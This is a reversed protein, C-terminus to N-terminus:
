PLSSPQAPVCDNKCQSFLMYMLCNPCCLEEINSCMNGLIRKAM